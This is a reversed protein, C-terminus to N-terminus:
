SRYSSLGPLLDRPMCDGIEIGSEVELAAFLTTMGHRKYDHTM